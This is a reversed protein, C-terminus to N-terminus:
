VLISARFNRVYMVHLKKKNLIMKVDNFNKFCKKKNKHYVQQGRCSYSFLIFQLDFTNTKSFERETYVFSYQQYLVHKLIYSVIATRMTRRVKECYCYTAVAVYFRSAAVYNKKLIAARYGLNIDNLFIQSSVNTFQVGQDSRRIIILWLCLIFINYFTARQLIVVPSQKLVKTLIHM